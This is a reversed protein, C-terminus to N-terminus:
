GEKYSRDTWRARGGLRGSVGARLVATLSCVNNLGCPSLVHPVNSAKRRHPSGNCQHSLRRVAAEERPLFRCYMTITPLSVPARLRHPREQQSVIRDKM